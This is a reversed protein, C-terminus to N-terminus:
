SSTRALTLFDIPSALLGFGDPLEVDDFGFGLDDAEAVVGLPPEVVFRADLLGPSALM